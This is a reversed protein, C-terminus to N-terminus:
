NIKIKKTHVITRIQEAIWDPAEIPSLHGIERITILRAQKLVQMVRQRIINFTMVPDDEFALVTIPLELPIIKEAIGQLLWWKWLCIWTNYEIHNQNGLYSSNFFSYNNEIIKKSASTTFALVSFVGYNHWCM